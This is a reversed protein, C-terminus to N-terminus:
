LSTSLINRESLSLLYKELTAWSRLTKPPLSYGLIKLLELTKEFLADSSMEVEKQEVLFKKLYNFLPLDQENFSTLKDVIELILLLHKKKEYNEKVLQLSSMLSVERLSYFHQNEKVVLHVFNLTDLAGLRRSTIKQAGRATVMIKGLEKTYVVLLQDNERNRSKKIIIGTTKQWGLM